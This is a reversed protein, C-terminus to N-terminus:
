RYSIGAMISVTLNTHSSGKGSSIVSTFGKTIRPEILLSTKGLVIRTEFGIVAGVDTKPGPMERSDITEGGAAVEFGRKTAYSIAPGALLSCHFSSIPGLYIRLLLPFEVYNLNYIVKGSRRYAGDDLYIDIPLMSGKASFLLEPQLAVSEHLRLFFFGGVTFGLVPDSDVLGSISSMGLGVKLGTGTTLDRIANQRQQKKFTSMLAQCPEAFLTDGPNMAKSLKTQVFDAVVYNDHMETVQFVVEPTRTLSLTDGHIDDVIASDTKMIAFQSGLAIGQAPRSLMIQSRMLKLVVFPVPPTRMQADTLRQLTAGCKNCFKNAAPNAFGCKPCIAQEQAVAAAVILMVIVLSCVVQTCLKM